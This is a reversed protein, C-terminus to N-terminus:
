SRADTWVRELLATVYQHAPCQNWRGVLFPSEADQLRDHARGLRMVVLTGPGLPKAVGAVRASRTCWRLLAPPGALCRRVAEGTDVGTGGDGALTRMSSLTEVVNHVTNTTAHIAAPDRRASEALLRQGRALTGSLRWWWSRPPLARPFGIVMRAAAYTAPTARYGPDFIRGLMTQVAVGVTEPDSGGRVYDALVALEAAQQDFGYDGRSLASELEQQRRARSPNSRDTFTPLPAAGIAFARAVRASLVRNILPGTHQVVRTLNPDADLATIGALDDVLVVDLLFPIRIRRPPAGEFATSPAGRVGAPAAVQPLPTAM